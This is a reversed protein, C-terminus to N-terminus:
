RAPVIWGGGLVRSGEPAYFVCAQGPAVGEEPALLEVEARGPGRPHLRAPAPPRTSRVKVAVEWGGAPADEIGGDGLWNIEAVAVQRSALAERPGVIVRRADADLRVVFLPEGGGIGLGRRQGVTYRIVGDHRGLVRGDLHMIEGPEAAGPRLKEIVAAYSGNPVFCIDQ